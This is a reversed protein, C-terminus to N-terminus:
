CCYHHHHPKQKQHQNQILYQHQDNEVQNLMLFEKSTKNRLTNNKM